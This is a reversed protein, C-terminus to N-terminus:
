PLGPVNKELSKVFEIVRPGPGGVIAAKERGKLPCTPSGEGGWQLFKGGHGEVICQVRIFGQSLVM